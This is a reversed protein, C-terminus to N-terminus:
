KENTVRETVRANFINPIFIGFSIGCSLNCAFLNFVRRFVYWGGFRMGLRREVRACVISPSIAFDMIIDIRYYSCSCCTHFDLMTQISRCIVENRERTNQQLLKLVTKKTFSINNIRKKRCKIKINKKMKLKMLLNTRLMWHLASEKKENLKMWINERLLWFWNKRKWTSFYVFVTNLCRRQLPANTTSRWEALHNITFVFSTLYFPEVHGTQIHM